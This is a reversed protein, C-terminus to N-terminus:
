PQRDRDRNADAAAARRLLAEVPGVMQDLGAASGSLSRRVTPRRPPLDTGRPEAGIATVLATDIRLDIRTPIFLPSTPVGTDARPRLGPLLGMSELGAGPDGIVFTTGPPVVAELGRRSPEYVSRPFVATVAGNRRFLVRDGGGTRVEFVREFGRPTRLGRELMRLDTSLPGVDSVNPTIPRARDFLSPARGRDLPSVPQASACLACFGIVACAIARVGVTHARAVITESAQGKKSM